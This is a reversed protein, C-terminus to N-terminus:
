FIQLKTVKGDEFRVVWRHGDKMYFWSERLHAEDSDDVKKQDPDGASLLVMEYTMGESITHSQIAARLEPAMQNEALKEQVKGTDLVRALFPLFAEPKLDADSLDRQYRFNVRSGGARQYGAGVKNAHNSGRRGEGGGELHVEVKDGDVKVNTITVWEDRAVGVGKDKLYKTLGELDLGRDDVRKKSPPTYYIDIGEKYAPMDILSKVDKGLLLKSLNQQAASSTSALLPQQLAPLVICALSACLIRQVTKRM